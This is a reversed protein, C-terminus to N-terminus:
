GRASDGPPATPPAGANAEPGDRALRRTLRRLRRDYLRNAVWVGCAVAAGDVVALGYYPLHAAVWHTASTQWLLGGVAVTQFACVIFWVSLGSLLAPSAYPQTRRALWTLPVTMCFWVVFGYIISTLSLINTAAAQTAAAQAAHLLGM